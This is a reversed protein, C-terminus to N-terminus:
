SLDKSYREEEKVEDFLETAEEYDDGEYAIFGLYYKAQAGYVSSNSVKNFYKKAENYRKNQFYAYGNNFQFKELEGKTLSTEDVKDLWKRAHSYKGNEFYFNAVNMYASNRKISTPYESVFQEMLQDADQQNLRVACNAIYYACDSKVTEDVQQEKVDTFLAQAALFQNNEYLEIAQNFQVLDNTFAATQQSFSNYSFVIFLLVTLFNRLM